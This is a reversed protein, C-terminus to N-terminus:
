KGEKTPEKKTKEPFKGVKYKALAQIAAIANNL